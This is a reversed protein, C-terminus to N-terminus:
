GPLTGLAQQLQQGAIMPPLVYIATIASALLTQKGVCM